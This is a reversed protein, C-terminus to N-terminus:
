PAYRHTNNGLVTWGARQRHGFLEVYPGRCMKMVLDTYFIEPKASHKYSGVKKEGAIVEPDNPMYVPVPADFVSRIGNDVIVKSARGRVMVLCTEHENRVTRGMGMWRKGNKTQKRWVIESAQRFGWARGVSYAEEVMSGVRWNFLVCDEALTPWEFSLGERAMLQEVTLKTDYNKAAGRGDGPLDDDFPWPCDATLVSAPQQSSFLAGASAAFVRSLVNPTMHDEREQLWPPVACRVKNCADCVSIEIRSMKEAGM